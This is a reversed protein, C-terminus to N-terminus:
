KGGMLRKIREAPTEKRKLIKKPATAKPTLSQDSSESSQSGSSYKIAERIVDAASMEPNKKMLMQVALEDDKKPEGTVEYNAAGLKDKLYTQMAIVGQNGTGKTPDTIGLAKEEPSQSTMQNWRLLSNFILGVKDPNSPNNFDTNSVGVPKVVDETIVADKSGKIYSKRSINNYEMTDKSVDLMRKRISGPTESEIRQLTKELPSVGDKVGSAKGVFYDFLDKSFNSVDSKSAEPFMRGIVLKAEEISFQSPQSEPNRAISTEFAVTPLLAALKYINDGAEVIKQHTKAIAKENVLIHNAVDRKSPDFLMEGDKGIVKLNEKAISDAWKVADESLKSKREMVAQRAKDEAFQVRSAYDAMEQNYKQMSEMTPNMPYQPVGHGALQESYKEDYLHKLVTKVDTGMSAMQDDLAMKFARSTADGERQGAGSTPASPSWTLLDDLSKQKATDSNGSMVGSGGVGGMIANQYQDKPQTAVTETEPAFIDDPNYYKRSPVTVPESMKGEPTEMPARPVSVEPVNDAPREVAIPSIVLGDAGEKKIPAAAVLTKEPIKTTEVKEGSGMFIASPDYYKREAAM